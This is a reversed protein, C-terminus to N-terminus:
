FAFSNSNSNILNIATEFEKDIGKLIDNITIHVHYNPITGRGFNKTTDVYNVYKQLPVTITFGFPEVKATPMMGSTNGQYGGGTEQGIFTAKKNHSLIAAVDASSSMTFGNILVYTNGSYSKSVPEQEEYYDFDRVHRAKQWLWISDKQIPKRYFVKLMVGKVDKASAETVEIRDWYRFPKEFFYKIFYVANGDSGGTNDRLDVVLNKIKEKALREFTNDIFDKFNQGSKKIESNSFTHITLIGINNEVRFELQKARTPERLFGDRVIEDYRAGKVQYTAEGTKRKVVVKFNGTQDILRYWIPFQFYVARHKMTLNFGDSPVLQVIQHIIHQMDQGNISVIEDGEAISPNTSYNNVVYANEGNYYIQFPFLNPQQNLYDTYEKSLAIETHLCGIKSMIAKLKMYSQLATLSDNITNKVSDIYKTFEQKSTYRFFGPHKISLEKTLDGITNKVTDPSFKQSTYKGGTTQSFSHEQIFLLSVLLLLLRTM